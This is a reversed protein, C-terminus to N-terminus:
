SKIRLLKNVANQVQQMALTNDEGLRGLAQEVSDTAQVIEYRLMPIPDGPAVERFRTEHQLAVLCRELRSRVEDINLRDPPTEAIAHLANQVEQISM